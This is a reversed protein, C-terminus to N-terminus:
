SLPNLLKRQREREVEAEIEAQTKTIVVQDLTVRKQQKPLQNLLDNIRKTADSLIPPPLKNKSM